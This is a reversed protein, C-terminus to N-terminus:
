VFFNIKSLYPSKLTLKLASSTSVQPPYNELAGVIKITVFNHEQEITRGYGDIVKAVLPVYDISPSFPKVHRYRVGSFPFEWCDISFDNMPNGNKDVLEGIAPFNQASKNYLLTCSVNDAVDYSFAMRLKDFEESSSSLMCEITNKSQSFVVLKDSALTTIEITIEINKIIPTSSKSDNKAFQFIRLQIVDQTLLPSGSHSYTIQDGNESFSCSFVGPVVQGVRETMTGGRIVVVKCYSDDDSIIKLHENTILRTRGIPVRLTSPFTVELAGALSPLLLSLIFFKM